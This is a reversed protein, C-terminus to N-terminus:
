ESGPHQGMNPMFNFLSLRPRVREEMGTGSVAVRPEQRQKLDFYELLSSSIKM